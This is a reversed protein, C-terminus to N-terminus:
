DWCGWLVVVAVFDKLESEGVGSSMLTLHTMFKDDLSSVSSCIESKALHGLKATTGLYGGLHSYIMATSSACRWNGGFTASFSLASALLKKVHTNQYM